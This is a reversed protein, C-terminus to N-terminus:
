KDNEGEEKNKPVACQALSLVACVLVLLLMDEKTGGSYPILVLGLSCVAINIVTLVSSLAAKGRFLWILLQFAACIVSFIILYLNM